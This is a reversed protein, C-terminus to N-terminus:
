ADQPVAPEEEEVDLETLQDLLDDRVALRCIARFTEESVDHEIKCADAEAVEPDVGLSVLFGMLTKHRQGMKMAVAMGTETLTILGEKDMTIYGNERLRKTSYTVSPKTVGLYDAIDVSRIYGHKEKMFLMAELYDEGARQLKM